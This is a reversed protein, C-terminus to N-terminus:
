KGICFHAFIYHLTDDSTIERGTIEGISSIAHRLDLTLLDTSLGMDFGSRMRQLADYAERLLQHHRANSVILDAENAQACDMIKVLEEKLQDMGEGSRASIFLPKESCDLSDCLVQDLHNREDEPLNESKNLLVLMTREGRKLWIERIHDLQNAEELRTADLVGLIIDAEKIKSRSREIGLSEITDDTERLGATDVFRFLYGGIHMTDEITDRTTGHIDSVIAREEGLLTNLLTSKGVNTTGVIAVPIGRKVANGLRYSDILKKLKLEIQDCLALLETRDAFEVDEEPFDLELEMLGTLRLLEERLANLEESYGGRLQKMAMQHQAKSEGAIIDAVAEARSLDMRGNLYARRTFEGPQAMQCGEGVLCELLRRRIYVSGHCSIEVTDEGTFSHPARFYTLVVEDILEDGAIVEGYYAYRPKVSEAVPTEGGYRFLRLAVPLAEPGSVRIVAIGGVGPATSVACITSKDLM